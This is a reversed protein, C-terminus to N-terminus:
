RQTDVWRSLKTTLSALTISGDRIVERNFEALNFRSGLRREADRRAAMIANYGIYYIALQGPTGAHRDAYAEANARPRGGLVMMSDVLMDRTWGRTHFAVDLYAGMAVDLIHVLYGARTLDSDYLGMDDALVEAYIGWGETFGGVSLTGLVPHTTGARNAAIRQLHHGPYGEHAVANPVSMRETRSLNVLFQAPRSGDAPARLYQPPLGAREQFEPYPLVDLPEDAYGAVVKSFLAAARATVRRYEPLISDRAAFTFRPDARLAQIARGVDREGTLRVVLPALQARMAEADRRAQMMISDPETAASSQSRLSARYCAVGDRQQFLSGNQRARPIYEGTLWRRHGAAAPYVRDTLVARWEERFAASSDRLAPAFLPSRTIDDPLLDTYQGAVVTMVAGSSTYGSDLGRQLLGREDHMLDPLERLAKLANARSAADGVRVTRAWNSAAVHWGSFQNPTSWLHFRCVRSAIASNVVELLNDRLMQNMAGTDSPHGPGNLDAAIRDLRTRYAIRTSDSLDAWVRRGPAPRNLSVFSDAIVSLPVPAASRQPVSETLSIIATAIIPPLIRLNM